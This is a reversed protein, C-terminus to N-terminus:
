AAEERKLSHELERRLITRARSTIVRINGPTTGLRNALEDSDVGEAGGLIVEWERSSLKTRAVRDLTVLDQRHEAVHEPDPVDAEVNAVYESDISALRQKRRSAAITRHVLVHLFRRIVPAAAPIREDRVKRLFIMAVDQVIDDVDADSAGLRRAAACVTSSFCSWTETFEAETVPRDETTYSVNPNLFAPVVRSTM